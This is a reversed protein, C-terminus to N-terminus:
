GSKRFNSHFHWQLKFLFSFLPHELLQLKAPFFFCFWESRAELTANSFSWQNRPFSSIISLSRRGNIQWNKKPKSAFRWACHVALGPLSSLSFFLLLSRGSICFWLFWAGMCLMIVEVFMEWWDKVPGGPQTNEIRQQWAFPGTPFLQLPHFYCVWFVAPYLKLVLFPQCMSPGNKECDASFFIAIWEPGPKFPEVWKASNRVITRVCSCSYCNINYSSLLLTGWFSPPNMLATLNRSRRSLPIWTPRSVLVGSIVNQIKKPDWIQISQAHEKGRASWGTATAQPFFLM